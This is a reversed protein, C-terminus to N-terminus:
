ERNNVDIVSASCSIRINPCSICLIRETGLRVNLVTHALYTFHRFLCCSVDNPFCLGNLSLQEIGILLSRDVTNARMLAKLPRSGVDIACSNHANVAVSM